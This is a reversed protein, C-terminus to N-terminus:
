RTRGHDQRTRFNYDPTELFFLDFIEKAIRAACDQMNVVFKELLLLNTVDQYAVFLSGDM